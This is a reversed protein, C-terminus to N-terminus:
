TEIFAFSIFFNEAINVVSFRNFNSFSCRTLFIAEICVFGNSFYKNIYKTVSFSPRVIPWGGKTWSSGTNPVGQFGAIWYHPSPARLTQMNTKIKAGIGRKEIIFAPWSSHNISIDWLILRHDFNLFRLYFQFPSVKINIDHRISKFKHIKRFVCLIDKIINANEKSIIKFM